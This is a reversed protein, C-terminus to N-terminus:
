GLLEFLRETHEFDRPVVVAIGLLHGDAHERDVFGLPLYAPRAQKSTLGDPAHGSIWEPADPGCRRMLERRMADAVIGCSELGFRRGGSMQRLVFIGPDFPGEHVKTTQVKKQNQTGRGCPHNRGSARDYRSKLYALRGGAFM